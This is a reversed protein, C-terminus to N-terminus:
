ARRLREALQRRWISLPRLAADVLSVTPAEGDLGVARDREGAPAQFTGFLRDWLPLLTAYNADHRARLPAHHVRHYAPGVVVLGLRGLDLALNLHAFVAVGTLLFFVTLSAADLGLIWAVPVAVMLQSYPVELWHARLGTAASLHREDHHLRHFAWLAPVAHQVRHAWYLFFDQLLLALAVRLGDDLASEPPAIRALNFQLAGSLAHILAGWASWSLLVAFVLVLAHWGLNFLWPRLPQAAQLPFRRELLALCAVGALVPWYLGWVAAILAYAWLDLQHWSM